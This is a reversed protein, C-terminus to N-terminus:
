PLKPAQKPFTKPAPNPFNKPDRKPLTQPRMQPIKPIKNQSNKVRTYTTKAQTQISDWNDSLSPIKNPTDNTFRKHTWIVSCRHVFFVRLCSKQSCLYVYNVSKKTFYKTYNNEHIRVFFNVTIKSKAWKAGGEWGMFNWKNNGSIRVNLSFNTFFRFYYFM